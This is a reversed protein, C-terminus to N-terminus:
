VDLSLHTIAMMDPRIKKSREDGTIYAIVDTPLPGTPKNTCAKNNVSTILPKILYILYTKECVLHTFLSQEYGKGFAGSRAQERGKGFIGSLPQEYGQHFLDNV